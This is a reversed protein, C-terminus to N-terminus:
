VAPDAKQLKLIPTITYLINWIILNWSFIMILNYEKLFYVVEEDTEITLEVTRGIISKLEALNCGSSLPNRKFIFM